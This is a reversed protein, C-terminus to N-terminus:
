STIRGLAFHFISQTPSYSKVRRIEGASIGVGGLFGVRESAAHNDLLEYYDIVGRDSLLSLAHDLFGSAGSPLNMIIRDFQGDSYTGADRLHAELNHVGNAAANEKLYSVAYPNIDLAVVCGPSANRAAAISFPGVGAFMDLVREGPSLTSCVRRRESALRPSYFTRAVDLRLRVGYETVVTDTTGTGAIAHIRRTRFEGAVGSDSFVTDLSPHALLIAEGVEREYRCLEDPIKLLAKTGIIDFSAPLHKRLAEPVDAFHRYNRRIAVEKFDAVCRKGPFSTEPYGTLPIVVHDGQRIIRLRNDLLGLSGLRKRADEAYAPSIRIGKARM